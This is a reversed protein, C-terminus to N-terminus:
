PEVPQRCQTFSDNPCEEPIPIGCPRNEQDIKNMEQILFASLVTGM